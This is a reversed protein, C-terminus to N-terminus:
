IESTYLDWLRPGLKVDNGTKDAYLKHVFIIFHRPDWLLKSYIM